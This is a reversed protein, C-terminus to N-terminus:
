QAPTAGDSNTGSGTRSADKNLHKILVERLKPELTDVTVQTDAVHGKPDVIWITPLVSVGYYAALPANWGRKDPEVHFIVPWTLKTKELFADIESEESDLAVSLIQAYNKYKEGVAQLVAVQDHFPKVHSAWFVIVVSKGAFDDVSIFNGDLTPGAFQLPQGTLTLRRLIGECQRAQPSEPFKAPIIGYCSKADDMLGHLECTRGAALLLPLSREQEDPFRTAFLQAQRSFEQLWRPENKGYRLTHAHALNVLTLQASAAAQTGPKKQHFAEAADYLANVSEEDGQLALQLRADLLCGVAALFEPELQPDKATLALAETALKVIQLNRERRVARTSALQKQIEEASPEAAAEDPNGSSDEGPLGPLPAIRLQQIERLIWLPSGPELEAAPATDAVQPQAISVTPLGSGGDNATTAESSTPAPSQGTQGCGILLVSLCAIRWHTSV